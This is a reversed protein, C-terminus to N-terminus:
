LQPAPTPTRDPVTCLAPNNPPDRPVRILALRAGALVPTPRIREPRGPLVRVRRGGAGGPRPVTVRGRRYPILGAKQLVGAAVTVSPRRVGLMMALFEQTLPFEDAGVRDHTMLLWRACGRSSRTTTTAPPPSAVLNLLAQTYRQVVDRFPGDPRVEEKFAAVPLGAAEGPVQCFVETPSRDAGLFAPVGAMGENGVVGVESTGGNEMIVVMSIMGSRPFYVHRIPGNARYLSTGSALVVDDMRATLRDFVAPPLAALLRNEPTRRSPIFLLKEAQLHCRGRELDLRSALRPLGVADSAHLTLLIKDSDPVSRSFYGFVPGATVRDGM